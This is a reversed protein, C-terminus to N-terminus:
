FRASMRLAASAAYPEGMEELARAQAAYVPGHGPGFVVHAGEHVIIGGYVTCSMRATHPAVEAYRRTVQALVRRPLEREDIQRLQKAFRYSPTRYLRNLAAVTRGVFEPSGTILIGDYRAAPGYRAPNADPPCPNVSREHDNGFQTLAAVLLGALGAIGLAVNM